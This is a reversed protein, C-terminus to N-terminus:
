RWGCGPRSRGSRTTAILRFRHDCDVPARLSSNRGFTLGTEPLISRAGAVAEPCDLDIDVLAGSPDGLVIGVNCGDPFDDLPSDLASEQWHRRTPNKGKAAVPVPVWGRERYRLAADLASREVAGQEARSHNPSPETTPQTHNRYPDSDSEQARYTM